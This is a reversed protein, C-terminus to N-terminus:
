PGQKPPASVDARLRDLYDAWEQMMRRREPLHSTRNYATGNPDRVVHGLQHEIVDPRFGLVEDLITRATARFGHGTMEDKPIGMSRMAALVAGESMPRSLSRESPFVYASKGTQRHLDRLVAEAQRALPVILQVEPEDRKRKSKVFCWQVEDLDVDAWRAKRLEGPRVFLLPALKVAAMVVATGQYGWLMRLLHGLRAPEVVAAFHGGIAPPLVGQIHMAPNAEARATAIAYQFVKRCYTQARHATDLAGRDKVRRLVELLEPVTIEAVPRKGIWPFLDRELLRLVRDAHEPAFTRSHEGFWERALVEFTNAAREVGAAKEAKRAVGPDVGQNLLKRADDRKSRAERLSVDPYTGLSLRKERALVRYKLRWWCGGSPSVELYLGRSDFLRRTKGTPKLRKLELDTLPM